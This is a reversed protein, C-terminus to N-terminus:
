LPTVTFNEGLGLGKLCEELLGGVALPRDDLYQSFEEVNKGVFLKRLLKESQSTISSGSKLNEDQFLVLEGKLPKRLLFKKGDVEVKLLKYGKGKLEDIMFEDIM